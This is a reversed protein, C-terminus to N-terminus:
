FLTCHGAVPGITIDTAQESPLELPGLPSKMWSDVPSDAVASSPVPPATGLSDLALNLPKVTARQRWDHELPHM